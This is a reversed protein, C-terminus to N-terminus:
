NTNTRTTMKKYIISLNLLVIKVDKDFIKLTSYQHKSLKLANNVLSIFREM